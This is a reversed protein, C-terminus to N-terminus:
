GCNWRGNLDGVQIYEDIGLAVSTIKIEINDQDRDGINWVDGSIVLSSDCQVSDPIELDGLIVFDREVVIDVNSSDWSCTDAKSSDDVEGTARAYITYSGDELEDFDIDLAKDDLTFSITVTEDKNDKIDFNDESDVDMIWKDNSNDYIGWELEIDNVDDNGNNEIRVEIEVKDLPFWGDDNGYGEVVRIDRINLDLNGPNDSGSSCFNSSTDFYLNQTKAGSVSGTATLTTYYDKLFEFNFNSPVSYNITITKSASDNISIISIPSFTITKGSSTIDTLSFSVTENQNSSITVTASSGTKSLSPNSITLTASAFSILFLFVFVSALFLKSNKM